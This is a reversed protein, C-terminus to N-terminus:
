TSPTERRESEKAQQPKESKLQAKRKPFQARTVVTGVQERAQQTSYKTRERGRAEATGVNLKCYYQVESDGPTPHLHLYNCSARGRACRSHKSAGCLAADWGAFAVLEADIQRGGYWRLRLARWAKWADDPSQYEAYVHGRLHPAENEVIELRLLAGFKQMENMVDNYFAAISDVVTAEGGSRVDHSQLSPSNYMHKLLLFRSRSPPPHARSCQLAGYPCCGTRSFFLCPLSSANGLTGRAQVSRMAEYAKAQAEQALLKAADADSIFPSHLITAEPKTPAAAEEPKKRKEEHQQEAMQQRLALVLQRREELVRQRKQFAADSTQVAALWVDHVRQCQEECHMRELEEAQPTWRALENRAADQAHLRRKARKHQNKRLTRRKGAAM